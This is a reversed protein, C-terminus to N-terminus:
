PGKNLVGSGGGGGHRAISVQYKVERVRNIEKQWAIYVQDTM